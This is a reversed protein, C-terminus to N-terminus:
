DMTKSPFKQVYTEIHAWKIMNLSHCAKTIFPLMMVYYALQSLAFFTAYGGIVGIIVQHKGGNVVIKGLATVYAFFNYLKPIGYRSCGNSSNQFTMVVGVKM